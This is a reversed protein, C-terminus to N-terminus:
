KFYKRNKYVYDVLKDFSSVSVGNKLIRSGGQNVKFFEETNEEGADIVTEWNGLTKRNIFNIADQKTKIM